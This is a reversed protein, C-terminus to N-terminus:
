ANVAPGSSTPRGYVPCLAVADGTATLVQEASPLRTLRGGRRGTIALARGRPGSGRWCALAPTKTPEPRASCPWRGAIPTTATWSPSPVRAASPSALAIPDTTIQRLAEAAEQIPRDRLEETTTWRQVTGQLKAADM